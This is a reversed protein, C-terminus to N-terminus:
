FRVRCGKEDAFARVDAAAPAFPYADDSFAWGQAGAWGQDYLTSVLTRYPLGDVGAMPFEGMVVPKDTVTRIREMLTPGWGALKTDVLIVGRDTVFVGTYGGSFGERPVPLSGTIIYLNEKVKEIRANKLAAESPGATPGQRSAAPGTTRCRGRCGCRSDPRRPPLPPPPRRTM